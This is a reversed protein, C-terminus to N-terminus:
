VIDSKVSKSYKQYYDYAIHGAIHANMLVIAVLHILGGVCGADEPTSCMTLVSKLKTYSTYTPLNAKGGLVLCM